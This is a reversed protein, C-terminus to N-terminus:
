AAGRTAQWSDGLDGCEFVDGLRPDILLWRKCGAPPNDGIKWGERADQWIVRRGIKWAAAVAGARDGAQFTAAFHSGYRGLRAPITELKRM